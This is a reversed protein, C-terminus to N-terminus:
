KKLLTQKSNPNSSGTGGGAAQRASGPSSHKAAPDIKDIVNGTDNTGEAAPQQPTPNSAFNAKPASFFYIGSLVAGLLAFAGIAHLKTKFRSRQSYIDVEGYDKILKKLKRDLEGHNYSVLAGSNARDNQNKVSAFSPAEAPNPESPEVKPPSPAASFAVFEGYNKILDDLLKKDFESNSASSAPPTDQTNKAATQVDLARPTEESPIQIPESLLDEESTDEGDDVFMVDPDLQADPQSEIEPLKEVDEPADEVHQIELGPPLASSQFKDSVPEPEQTTLIDPSNFTDGDDSNDDFLSDADSAARSFSETPLLASNVNEAITRVCDDTRSLRENLNTQLGRLSALLDKLGLHRLTLSKNLIETKVRDLDEEVENQAQLVKSQIATVEAVVTITQQLTFLGQRLHAIQEAADSLARLDIEEVRDRLTQISDVVKGSSLKAGGDFAPLGHDERLEKQAPLM